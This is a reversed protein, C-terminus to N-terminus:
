TLIVRPSKIVWGFRLYIQSMCMKKLPPKLQIQVVKLIFLMVPYILYDATGAM